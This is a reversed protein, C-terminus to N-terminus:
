AKNARAAVKAILPNLISSPLPAGYNAGTVEAEILPGAIFVMRVYVPLKQGYATIKTTWDVIAAVNSPQGSPNLEVRVSSADVTADVAVDTSTLGSEFAKRLVPTWCGSLKPNRLTAVDSNISDQSRYSTASSDITADGLIFQASDVNVLIDASTDRADLCKALQASDAADDPDDSDDDSPPAAQWGAPVESAQVVVAKLQAATAPKTGSPVTSPAGAVGTSTSTATPTHLPVNLVNSSDSASSCATLLLAAGGSLCIGIRIGHRM